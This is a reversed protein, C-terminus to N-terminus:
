EPVEFLTGGNYKGGQSATGYLNGQSDAILGGVPFVGDTQDAFSHLVTETGNPALKFVTGFDSTGGSYTTGYLNGSADLLLGSEPLAGDTCGPKACFSYLVIETGDAMLEFVTGSGNNAGGESTTGYLNGAGDRVLGAVPYTGDMPNTGFSYLVKERGGQPVEFIVGYPFRGDAYTTGYLNGGGDAILGAEPRAGDACDQVSCFAHLVTEKDDTTLEFVVGGAKLGADAATGYVNGASDEIVGGLPHSGDSKDTFTHLIKEKRDPAIQFVTGADDRGGNSTTGYLNGSGDAILGAVSQAGDNGGVGRFTHLISETKDPALEFVVGSNYRGGYATTGYLNGSGDALLTASPQLGDNSGDRGFAHLVQFGSARAAGIPALLSLVVGCIAFRKNSARAIATVAVEGLLPM